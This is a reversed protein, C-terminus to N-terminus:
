DENLEARILRYATYYEIDNDFYQEMHELENLVIENHACKSKLSSGFFVFDVYNRKSVLKGLEYSYTIPREPDLDSTNVLPFDTFDINFIPREISSNELIEKKEFLEIASQKKEKLSSKLDSYFKDILHQYRRHSHRRSHIELLSDKDYIYDYKFISEYFISLLNLIEEFTKKEILIELKEIEKVFDSIMKKLKKLIISFYKDLFQKHRLIIESVKFEMSEFEYNNNKHYRLYIIKESDGNYGFLCSSILQGSIKRIPHGVLENRIERNMYYNPDKKLQGKNINCKFILLLEEIFDQQIYICQLLSIQNSFRDSYSNSERKDFIIDFTDYFYGLIDGFYNTRVEPTFKIKKSCFDYELIFYNWIDAIRDLNYKIEEKM